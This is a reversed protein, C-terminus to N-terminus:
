SSASSYDRLGREWLLILLAILVIAVAVMHLLIQWSFSELLLRAPFSSIIAFPLVLTLIKRTLGSYIRDPKESFKTMHWVLEGFGRPSHTWFTLANAMINLSAFIISGNLLMLFFLGVKAFGPWPTYGHIAWVFIGFACILNVFSNAAFDRLSLFFLSSVPRVLYYDLEGKNIIPALGWLNNAFVTMNIADVILYGSVFVMMQSENWGGLIATHLFLVRFFAIAVAYYVLDMVIRM